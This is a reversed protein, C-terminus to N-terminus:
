GEGRGASATGPSRPAPTLRRPAEAQHRSAGQGEEQAEEAGQSEAVLEHLQKMAPRRRELGLAELFRALDRALSQRQLIVPFVARRRKNVPSEMTLIFTDVSDLMLKTRVALEIMGAQATTVTEPGGLDETLDRRWEALARGLQTRADIARHISRSGLETIARKLTTLGHHQRGRGGRRTGDSARAKSQRRDRRSGPRSAAPNTRM